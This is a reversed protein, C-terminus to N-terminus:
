NHRHPVNQGYAIPNQWPISSFLWNRTFHFLGVITIISRALISPLPEFESPYQLCVNSLNIEALLPTFSHVQNEARCLNNVNWRQLVLPSAMNCIFVDLPNMCPHTSGVTLVQNARQLLGLLMTSNSKNECHLCIFAVPFIHIHKYLWSFLLNDQFYSLM